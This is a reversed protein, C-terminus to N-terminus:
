LLIYYIGKTEVIFYFIIGKVRHVRSVSIGTQTDKGTDRSVPIGIQSVIYTNICPHIHTHIYM